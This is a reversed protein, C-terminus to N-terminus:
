EAAQQFVDFLAMAVQGIRPGPIIFYRDTFIHIQEYRVANITSLPKWDEKLQAVETEAQESAIIRFELITDPNRYVLDEKSVDFYRPAVDEYINRSGCLELIESLYTDKGAAYISKLSGGERGVVLLTSVPYRGVANNKVWELTDQIGQVVLEATESHGLVRGLAGISLIIDEVTEDPLTFTKLNLRNLKRELEGNPLMFVIDPQLSVMKEFDPNLYGGIKEVKAVAKPYLCYDTRGILLDGAGIKYIMETINPALSLIRKPPEDSFIPNSFFIALVLTFTFLQKKM